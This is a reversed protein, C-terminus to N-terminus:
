GCGRLIDVLHQLKPKNRKNDVDLRILISQQVRPDGFLQKMRIYSYLQFITPISAM